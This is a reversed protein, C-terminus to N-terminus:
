SLLIEVVLPQLSCFTKTFLIPISLPSLSFHQSASSSSLLTRCILGNFIIRLKFSSALTYLVEWFFVDYLFWVGTNEIFISGLIRLSISDFLFWCILPNYLIVLYSKDWCHFTLKIGLFDTLTINWMSLVFSLVMCDDTYLSFLMQCFRVGCLLM